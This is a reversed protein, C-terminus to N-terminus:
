MPTSGNEKWKLSVKLDAMKEQMGALAHSLTLDWVRDEHRLVLGGLLAPDVREKLRIQRKLKRGLVQTLQNREDEELERASHVEVATMGAKEDAFKEFIEIVAELLNARQREVVVLLFNQTIKSFSQFASEIIKRKEGFAITPSVLFSELKPAKALMARLAKLEGTVEDLLGAGKAAEYLAQAYIAAVPRDANKSAM